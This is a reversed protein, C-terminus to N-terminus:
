ELLCQCWGVRELSAAPGGWRSSRSRSRRHCCPRPPSFASSLTSRVQSRARFTPLPTWSTLRTRSKDFELRRPPRLASPLLRRPSLTPRTPHNTSSPPWPSPPPPRTRRPSLPLPPGFSLPSSPSCSRPAPPSDCYSLTDVQSHHHHHHYSALGLRARPPLRQVELEVLCARRRPAKARESDVFQLECDIM